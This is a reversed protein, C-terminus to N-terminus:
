KLVDVGRERVNDKLELKLISSKRRAETVVLRSLYQMALEENTRYHLDYNLCWASDGAAIIDFYDTKLLRFQGYTNSFQEGLVIAQENDRGIGNQWTKYLLTASSGDESLSVLFKFASNTRESLIYDLKLPSDNYLDRKRLGLDARFSVNLQLTSIAKQILSRSSLIAIENEINRKTELVGVEDLISQSIDSGEDEVLVTTAMQYVPQAYWIYAKSCALSVLLCVIFIWWNESALHIVKAYNIEEEGPAKNVKNETM